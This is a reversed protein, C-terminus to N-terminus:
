VDHDRGTNVIINHMKAILFDVCVTEAKMRRNESEGSQWLGIGISIFHFRVKENKMCFFQM